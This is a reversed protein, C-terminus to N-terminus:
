GRMEGLTSELPQFALGGNELSRIGDGIGEVPGVMHNPELCGVPTSRGGRRAGLGRGAAGGWWPLGGPAAAATGAAPLWAAPIRLIWFASRRRLIRV